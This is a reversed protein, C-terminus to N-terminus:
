GEAALLGCLEEGFAYADALVQPRQALDEPTNIGEVTFQAILPIELHGLFHEVTRVLQMIEAKSNGARVAIAVGKASCPGAAPNTNGYPTCRDIFVKMQGTVDGWYSPSAVLVLQAAFVDAMIRQVDDAQVCAGTADCAKCGRCYGIRRDSLRHLITDIGCTALARTIEAMITETNGGARPSGLICVAKM